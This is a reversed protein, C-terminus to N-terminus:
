KLLESVRKEMIDVVNSWSWESHIYTSNKIADSKLMLYDKYAVRLQKKLDELSPENWKARDYSPSFPAWREKGSAVLVSNRDTCFDM